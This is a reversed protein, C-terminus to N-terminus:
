RIKQDPLEKKIGADIPMKDTQPTLGTAAMLQTLEASLRPVVSAAGATAILNTREDPDKKLDYLEAM